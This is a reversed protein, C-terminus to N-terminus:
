NQGSGSGPIDEVPGGVTGGTLRVSWGLAFNVEISQASGEQGLIDFAVNGEARLIRDSASLSANDASLSGEPGELRVDGEATISSIGDRTSGLFDVRDASFSYDGSEVTVRGSDQPVNIRGDQGSVQLAEARLIIERGSEREFLPKDLEYRVEVSGSLLGQQTDLEYTGHGANARVKGDFISVNGELELVHNDISYWVTGASARQAGRRFSAGGRLALSREPGDFVASGATGRSGDSGDFSVAGNLEIQTIGDLLSAADSKLTADASDSRLRNGQFTFEVPGELHLIAGTDTQELVFSSATLKADDGQAAPIGSSLSTLLVLCFVAIRVTGTWRCPRRKPKPRNMLDFLQNRSDRM